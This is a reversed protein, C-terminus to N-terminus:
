KLTIVVKTKSQKTAKKAEFVEGTTSDIGTIDGAKLQTEIAKLREDLAKKEELLRNYEAHGCELYLFKTGTEKIQFESLEGKGYKEVESILMSQITDNKEFFDVIRGMINVKRAVEIVNMEGDTAYSEILECYHTLESKTTPLESMASVALEANNKM